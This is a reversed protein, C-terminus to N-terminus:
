SQKCIGTPCHGKAHATFETEFEDMATTVPRSAERGFGCLSTERMVRALERLRGSKYEGDYVARLLDVVQKSGERCPVCRGCNMEKAFKAREGALAVMCTSDGFLEVVGNTGLRAGTLGPASAPVDLSRTLGGFVGGVCAGNWEDEPEVAPLAADLTTDTPLEVTALTTGDDAVTFLRTGPDSSAGGPSDEELIEGVQSFTRPTHVLTPRGNVGHESPGPPQRRAELRHNGEIAELAMTPEGAKYEDPGTIVRIPIETTSVAGLAAAAEQTRERAVTETENLYIVVDTANLAIASALAIDVIVFPASELLLRDGDAHHDSENGNVVVVPDGTAEHVTAWVEAISVDSSADGRGRGRLDSQIVKERLSEPDDEARKTVLGDDRLETYDEISTPVLWGCGGLVRRSGVGLPGTEPTPVITTGLDHEVVAMADDTPVSGNDLTRVMTEVREIPPRSFFATREERSAMVLPELSVHGTSGVESATVSTNSEDIVDLLELGQQRNESSASVRVAPTEGIIQEDTMVWAMRTSVSFGM